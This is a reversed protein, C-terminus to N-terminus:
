VDEKNSPEKIAIFVSTPVNLKKKAPWREITKIIESNIEKEFFKM